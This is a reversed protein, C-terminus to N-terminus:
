VEVEALEVPEGTGRRVITQVVWHKDKSFPRSEAIVVTDGIECQNLEDHAKFKRTRRITRGYLPHRVLHEVAVVVTKDMKNSTVRGTMTRRPKRAPHVAAAQQRKVTPAKREAM